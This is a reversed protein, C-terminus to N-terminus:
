FAEKNTEEVYWGPCGPCQQAMRSNTVAEPLLFASAFQRLGFNTWHKAFTLIDAEDARLIEAGCLPDRIRNQCFYYASVLRSIPHRFVTFWRCHSAVGHPRLGETYAGWTVTYEDDLFTKAFGTGNKWHPSDYLGVSLNNQKVWPTLIGKVTQGGSKNMHNFMWCSKQTKGVVKKFADSALPADGTCGSPKGLLGLEAM